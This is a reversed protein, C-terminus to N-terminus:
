YRKESEELRHKKTEMLDNLEKVLQIFTDQDKEIAIRACLVNVRNREEPTV